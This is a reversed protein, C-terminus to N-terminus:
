RYPASQSARPKADSAQMNKRPQFAPSITQTTVGDHEFSLRKLPVGYLAQLNAETLVADVPGCIFDQEGSMLMADDAVALAHHPHHTSFIVTLGDEHSLRIIWDLVQAQNKVDLSSTPEDLLLIEAEAVLGRAFIVLQRQGGSLEHFPADARDALGFRDLASLAIDEDQRSPRAFLRIHRARGMLVMDLVSFDFGVQFLQPVFAMRGSHEITGETPRMVGLLAMLLTTKGRGNPGLLAFVQGAAVTATCHRFVWDGRRYAHGLDEFRIARRIPDNTM